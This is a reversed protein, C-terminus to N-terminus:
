PHPYVDEAHELAYDGLTREVARISVPEDYGLRNCDTECAHACARGTIAPLPNTRLLIEVAEDVQRCAAKGHLGPIDNHIPLRFCLAGRQRVHRRLDLPLPERRLLADCTVGGKRLCDFTNDPNRYHRAARNRASTAPLRRSTASKRPPWAPRPKPLSRTPRGSRRTSAIETLTTLAGIRVGAPTAEVYRLETVPKLGIALEPPTTM